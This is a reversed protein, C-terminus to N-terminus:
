WARPPSCVAPRVTYGRSKYIQALGFGIITALFRVLALMTRATLVATAATSDIYHQAGLQQALSAKEGGRAIAAVRYGLKDAYQVGLHGLGGIGQFLM